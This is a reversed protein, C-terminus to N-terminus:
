TKNICTGGLLSFSFLMQFKLRGGGRNMHQHSLLSVTPFIFLLMSDLLHFIFLAESIVAILSSFNFYASVSNLVEVIGVVREDLM